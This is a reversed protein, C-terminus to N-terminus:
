PIWCRIPFIFHCAAFFGKRTVRGGGPLTFDHHHVYIAPSRDQTLIEQERWESFVRGAVEYRADGTEKTLDVRCFNFPSRAYLEVQMEESIVDYPPTVVDALSGIKEQNYTIARFTLIKKENM